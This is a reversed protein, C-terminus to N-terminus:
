PLFIISYYHYLRFVDIKVRDIAFPAALPFVSFSVDLILLVIVPGSDVLDPLNSLQTVRDGDFAVTPPSKLILIDVGMTRFVVVCEHLELTVIPNSYFWSPIDVDGRVPSEDSGVISFSVSISVRAGPSPVSISEIVVSM